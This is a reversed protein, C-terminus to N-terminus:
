RAAPLGDLMLDSFAKFGQGIHRRHPALDDKSKPTFLAHERKISQAALLVDQGTITSLPGCDRKIAELKAREIAERVTAPNQGELEMAANTLDENVSLSNGAYHRMLRECAEADPPSVELVLDIRGPRRMAPNIDEPHNSTLVLMIEDNKSGIGDLTNLLDNVANNRDSGAIREVDECFVVAPTYRKAFMLARSLEGCKPVYIFTWGSHVATNAIMGALLTKGTGYPGALLVGRKLPISAGRCAAAYRIPTLVSTAIDSELSRRFIPANSTPVVFKIEPIPRLDGLHDTFTIQFAKGRYLSESLALKRTRAFLQRVATESGHTTTAVMEFMLGDDTIEYGTDVYGAIGPLAMRGWLVPVTETPSIAVNVVEPTLEKNGFFTEIIKKTQLVVGFQEEVARQLALAGDWPFCAITERLQVKEQDYKMQRQLTEIAVDLSMELPVMLAGAHREVRVVNVVQSATKPSAVYNETTRGDM